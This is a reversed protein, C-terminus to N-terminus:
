PNSGEEVESNHHILVFSQSPNTSTEKEKAVVYLVFSGHEMASLNLCLYGSSNVGHLPSASIRHGIFSSLIGSSHCPKGRERPIFGFWIGYLILWFFLFPSQLTILPDFKALFNLTNPIVEFQILAYAEDNCVWHLENPNLCVNPALSISNQEFKCVPLFFTASQITRITRISASMTPWVVCPLIANPCNALSKAHKATFPAVVCPGTLPWWM